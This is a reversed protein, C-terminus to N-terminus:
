TAGGRASFFTTGELGGVGGVLSESSQMTTRGLSSTAQTLRPSCSLLWLVASVLAPSCALSSCWLLPLLCASVRLSVNLRTMRAPDHQTRGFRMVNGDPCNAVGPQEYDWDIIEFTAKAKGAAQQLSTLHDMSDIWSDVVDKVYVWCVILQEATLGGSIVMGVGVALTTM